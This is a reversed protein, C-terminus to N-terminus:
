KDILSLQRFQKMELLMFAPYCHFGKRQIRTGPVPPVLWPNRPADGSRVPSPLARGRPDGLPRAGVACGRCRFRWSGGNIVVITIIATVNIMATVIIM